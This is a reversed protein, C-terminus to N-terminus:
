PLVQLAFDCALVATSLLLGLIVNPVRHELDPRRGAWGFFLFCSEVVVQTAFLMLMLTFEYGMAKFVSFNLGYNVLWYVIRYVEYDALLIPFSYSAVYTPLTAHRLHPHFNLALQMIMSRHFGTQMGTVCDSLKTVADRHSAMIFVQGNRDLDRVVLLPMDRHVGVAGRYQGADVPM